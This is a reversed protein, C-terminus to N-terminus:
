IMFKEGHRLVCRVELLMEAKLNKYIFKFIFCLGYICQCPTLMAHTPTRQGVGQASKAKHEM